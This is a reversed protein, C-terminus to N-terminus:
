GSDDSAPVAPRQVARGGHLGDVLERESSRSEATPDMALQQLTGPESRDPQRRWARTHRRRRAVGGDLSRPPGVTPDGSRPRRPRPDPRFRMMRTCRRTGGCRSRFRGGSSAARRLPTGTGQDTRSFMGRDARIARRRAAPCTRCRRGRRMAQPGPVVAPRSRRRRVGTSCRCARSPRWPTGVSVPVAPSRTSVAAGPRARRVPTRLEEFGRPDGHM